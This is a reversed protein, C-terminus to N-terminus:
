PGIVLPRAILPLFQRETAVLITQSAVNNTENTEGFDGDPDVVVYVEHAGPPVNPWTVSVVENRGCGSLIVMQDTGIQTGGAQPDGDYFRVAAPGTPETLNGSNAIRARLTVTVPEGQSFAPDAFLRSPYFDIAPPIVATYDRFQEGMESLVWTGAVNEFLYGNYEDGMGGTSYWSWTQVLHFNDNPDGTQPDVATSMFDFTDAMYENVVDAPFGYDAPMLVGYESVTLPLDGYGRAKMWQRFNIIRQQFMAINANDEVAVIEGYPADIGPPIEAGWCDPSYDCSVENLIFNHISWGDVPMPVGYNELYHYLVLDLYQLRIPTPQVITGAYVRASPDATKIAQYLDHYAVAYVHPEIDDQWDRRDPENGILWMAGPNGAAAETITAGGDTLRYTYDDSGVQTLRITLAYEIGEPRPPDPSAQYDIYWGARLVALDVNGIAQIVNVGYDCLLGTTGQVTHNLPQAAALPRADVQNGWFLVAAFLTGLFMIVFLLRYATTM